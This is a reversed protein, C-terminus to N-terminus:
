HFNACCAAKDTPAEIDDVILDSMADIFSDAEKGTKVEATDAEQAVVRNRREGFEDLLAHAVADLWQHDDMLNHGLASPGWKGEQTWIVHPLEEREEDARPRM